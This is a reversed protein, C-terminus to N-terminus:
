GGSKTWNEPSFLSLVPNGEIDCRVKAFFIPTDGERTLSYRVPFLSGVSFIALFILLISLISGDM